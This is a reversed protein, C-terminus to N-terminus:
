SFYGALPPTRSRIVKVFYNEIISETQLKQGINDLSKMLVKLGQAVKLM